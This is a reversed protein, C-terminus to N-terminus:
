PQYLAAVAGGPDEIVCFKGGALGRVPVLLKGGNQACKDASATVDEVIFYILWGPPLEANSGRAHCIGAVTEGDSSNMCFDEYGDMNVPSTTWGTVQQYFDRLEIANEVTLDTPFGGAPPVVIATSRSPRADGSLWNKRLGFVM